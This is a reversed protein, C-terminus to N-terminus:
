RRGAELPPYDRVAGQPATKVVETKPPVPLAAIQEPTLNVVDKGKVPKDIAAVFERESPLPETDFRDVADNKFFISVRRQQDAVGQRRITFVYDWRDTHFPDALLPTGLIEKVQMRGLGPQIQAMIEQTVVNGQVVDVKYPELLGFLTEPKSLSFGSTSCASLTLVPALCMLTRRLFKLTM